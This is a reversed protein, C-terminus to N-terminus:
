GGCFGYMFEISDGDHLEYEVNQASGNVFVVCGNLNNEVLATKYATDIGKIKGAEIIKADVIKLLALLKTGEKIEFVDKEGALSQQIFDYNVTVKM